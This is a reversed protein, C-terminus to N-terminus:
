KVTLENRRLPQYTTSRLAVCDPCFDRVQQLTTPRGDVNRTITGTGSESGEVGEPFLSGCADCWKANSM